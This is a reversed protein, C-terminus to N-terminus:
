KRRHGCRKPMRWDLKTMTSVSEDLIPLLVISKTKTSGKENQNVVFEDHKTQLKHLMKKEHKSPSPFTRHNPLYVWWSSAGPLSRRVKRSSIASLKGPDNHTNQCCTWRSCGYRSQLCFISIEAGYRRFSTILCLLKM